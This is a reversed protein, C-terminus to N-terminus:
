RRDACIPAYGRLIWERVGLHPTPACRNYSQRLERPCIALPTRPALRYRVDDKTAGLAWQYELKREIVEFDYFAPIYHLNETIRRIALKLVTKQVTAATSEGSTQDAFFAELATIAAMVNAFHTAADPVSAYDAANQTNFVITEQFMDFVNEQRTSPM